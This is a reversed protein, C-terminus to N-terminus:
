IFENNYLLGVFRIKVYALLMKVDLRCRRYCGADTRDEQMRSDVQKIKRGWFYLLMWCFACLSQCIYQIYPIHYVCVCVPANIPVFLCVSQISVPTYVNVAHLDDASWISDASNLRRFPSSPKKWLLDSSTNFYQISWPLWFLQSQVKIDDPLHSTKKCRCVNFCVYRPVIRRTSCFRSRFHEEEKEKNVFKENHRLTFGM